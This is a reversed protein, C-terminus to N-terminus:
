RSHSSCEIETIFHFVNIDGVYIHLKINQIERVRPNDLFDLNKMLKTKVASIIMVPKERGQFFEPTGVDVAPYAKLRESIRTVQALYPSAVGIEDQKVKIGSNFGIKILNEIYEFVLEVEANNHFSFRDVEKVQKAESQVSHFLVPVSRNRLQKWNIAQNSEIEPIMSQMSSKYFKDNSYNLIEPHSRYNNNLKVIRNSQEKTNYVDM